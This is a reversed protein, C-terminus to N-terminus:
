SFALSGTHPIRHYHRKDDQAFGFGENGIIVGPRLIVRDGIQCGQNVNVLAHIICDDGISADHEIVCNARIITNKGIHANAGIVVNPGIRTNSGIQASSHIVASDHIADWESDLADYDDFHVKIKAQAFRVDKVKLISLKNREISLSDAM